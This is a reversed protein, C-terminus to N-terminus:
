GSSVEYASSRITCQRSRWSGWAIFFAVIDMASNSLARSRLMMLKIARPFVVSSDAAALVLVSEIIAECAALWAESGAARFASPGMDCGLRGTGEQVPVGILICPPVTM